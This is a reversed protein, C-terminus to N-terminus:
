IRDPLVIISQPTRSLPNNRKLRYISKAAAIRRPHIPEKINERRIRIKPEVICLCALFIGKRPLRHRFPQFYLERQDRPQPVFPLYPDFRHPCRPSPEPRFIPHGWRRAKRHQLVHIASTALSASTTLCDPEVAPEVPDIEQPLVSRQPYPIDM